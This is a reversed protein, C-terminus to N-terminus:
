TTAPTKSRSKINGPRRAAHNKDCDPSARQDGMSSRQVSPAELIGKRILRLITMPCTSLTAAAERQNLEGREAREGDRYPAIGHGNRFVRVRVETWTNDHGTRKGARNLISAIRLDPLQRALENIIDVETQDLTWRTEGSRAKRVKLQTHDGGQWHIKLDIQNDDVRVIIEVIITRLIRKRTESTAAPHHGHV